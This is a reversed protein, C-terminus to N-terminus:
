ALLVLPHESFNYSSYRSGKKITNVVLSM